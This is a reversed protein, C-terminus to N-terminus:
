PSPSGVIRDGAIEFAIDTAPDFLPYADVRLNGCIAVVVGAKPLLVLMSQTGVAVGGHHVVIAKRQPNVDDTVEDIRFGLGYQQPNIKGDRTTRPTFMVDRSARTVINGELLAAGFRVLDEPTSSFGGGAWKGSSDVDPAQIVYGDKFVQMYDQARGPPPKAFVDPGSRTMGIPTFLQDQMVSLFPKGAAGELVASLLVFGYSSYSFGEDPRFLLPDDKFVALSSNVSSYNTTSGFESLTMNPAFKYHRLGAQHSMLQRATIKVGKDPFTAVYRRIDADLDLLGMDSLRMAVAATLPKSVSGIAFVTQTSVAKSGAIDATGLAHSFVIRGDLAVAVSVAPYGVDRRLMQLRAVVAAVTKAPLAPDFQPGSDSRDLEKPFPERISYYAVSLGVVTLLILGFFGGVVRFIIRM